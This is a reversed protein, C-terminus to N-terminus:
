CNTRSRLTSADRALIVAELEANMIELVAIRAKMAALSALKEQMSLSGERQETACNLKIMHVKRGWGEDLRRYVWIRCDDDADRAIMTLRCLGRRTLLLARHGNGWGCVKAKTKELGEEFNKMSSRIKSIGLITGIEEAVFLANDLSGYVGIEHGEIYTIKGLEKLEMSHM